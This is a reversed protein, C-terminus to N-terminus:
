SIRIEYIIEYKNPISNSEDDDNIKYKSNLFKKEEGLKNYDLIIKNYNDTELIFYDKNDKKIIKNCNFKFSELSTITQNNIKTIISGPFISESSSIISGPFIHSIFVVPTIRNKKKQYNALNVINSLDFDTRKLLDIHNLTLEMIVMGGFIKYDVSELSPYKKRISYFNNGQSLIIEKKIIKKLKSNWFEIDVKQDITYFQLLDHLPIREKMSELYCEGFNDIKMNDFKCLIDGVNLGVQFLPSKKLIHTIYLGSQCDDKCDLFQLTYQNSKSFWTLLEPRYIIKTKKYMLDKISLFINTPIAYGINDANTVKSSNIAIVELSCDECKRILPGGSNGENIPADIQLHYGEMGSIIGSSTKINDSGLPYGVAYVEKSGDTDVEKVTLFKENKLDKVKILALDSIPCSSIIEAEYRKKGQQPITIWIKISGQIVHFCTLITGKNDIFFGSGSSQYDNLTKHPKFWNYDINDVIIKVVCAKFEEERSIKM